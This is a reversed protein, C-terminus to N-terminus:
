QIKTTTEKNSNNGPPYGEGLFEYLSALTNVTDIEDFNAINQLQEIKHVRHVILQSTENHCGPKLITTNLGEKITEKIEDSKSKCIQM